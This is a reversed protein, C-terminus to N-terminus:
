RQRVSISKIQSAPLIYIKEDSNDRLFIFRSNSSLLMTHDLGFGVPDKLLIDYRKGEDLHTHEIRYIETRISAYLYSSFILLSQLFFYCTRWNSEVFYRRVIWIIAKPSVFMIAIVLYYYFREPQAIYAHIMGGCIFIIMLIYIGASTSATSKLEGYSLRSRDHIGMFGGLIAFGTAVLSHHIGEVSAAVYDSLSFYDRVEIGFHGLISRNYFYGSVLFLASSISLITAIYKSSFSIKIAQKSTVTQKISRLEKQTNRLMIPIVSSDIESVESDYQSALTMFRKHAKHNGFHDSLFTQVQFNKALISRISNSQHHSEVVVDVADKHDRYELQYRQVESDPPAIHNADEYLAERLDNDFYEPFILRMTAVDIVKEFNPDRLDHSSSDILLILQYKLTKWLCSQLKIAREFTGFGLRKLVMRLKFQVRKLLIIARPKILM